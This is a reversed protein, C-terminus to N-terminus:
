EGLEIFYIPNDINMAVFKIDETEQIINKLIEDASNKINTDKLKQCHITIYQTGYNDMRKDFAYFQLGNIKREENKKVIDINNYISITYKYNDDSLLYKDSLNTSDVNRIIEPYNNTLAKYIISRLLDHIRKGENRDSIKIEDYNRYVIYGARIMCNRYGDDIMHNTGYEDKGTIINSKTDLYVDLLVKDQGNLGYYFYLKPSSVFRNYKEGTIEDYFYSYDLNSTKLIM